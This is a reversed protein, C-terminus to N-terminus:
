LKNPTSPNSSAFVSQMVVHLPNPARRMAGPIYEEGRQQPTHNSSAKWAPSKNFTGSNSHEGRAIRAALPSSAALAALKSASRALTHSPGEQEYYKVGGHTAKGKASMSQQSAAPYQIRQLEGELKLQLLVVKALTEQVEADKQAAASALTASADLLSATSVAGEGDTSSVGSANWYVASHNNQQSLKKHHKYKELLLGIQAKYNSCVEMCISIKKWDALINAIEESRSLLKGRLEQLERVVSQNKSISSNNHEYMAKLASRSAQVLWRISALEHAEPSEEVSEASTLLPALLDAEGALNSNSSNSSNSLGPLGKPLVQTAASDDNFHVMFETHFVSHPTIHLLFTVERDLAPVGSERMADLIGTRHVGTSSAHSSSSSTPVPTLRLESHLRQLLDSTHMHTIAQSLEKSYASLPAASINSLEMSQLIFFLESPRVCVMGHMASTKGSSMEIQALKAISSPKAERGGLTSQSDESVYQLSKEIYWKSRSLAAQDSLCIKLHRAVDQNFCLNVLDRVRDLIVQVQEDTLTPRNLSEAFKNKAVIANLIHPLISDAIFDLPKIPSGECRVLAKLTHKLIIPMAGSVVAAEFRRCFPEVVRACLDAVGSDQTLSEVSIGECLSQIFVVVDLRSTIENLLAQLFSGGSAHTTSSLRKLLSQSSFLLGSKTAGATNGNSSNQLADHFSRGHQPAEAQAATFVTEELM